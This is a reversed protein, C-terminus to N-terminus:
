DLTKVRVNCFRIEKGDGHSQLAISGVDPTRPDVKKM